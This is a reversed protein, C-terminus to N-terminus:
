AKKPQRGFSGTRTGSVPLDSKPQAKPKKEDGATKGEARLLVTPMGTFDVSHVMWGQQELEELQDPLEEARFVQIVRWKAM